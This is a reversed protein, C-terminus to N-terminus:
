RERIDIMHRRDLLALQAPHLLQQHPEGFRSRAFWNHVFFARM